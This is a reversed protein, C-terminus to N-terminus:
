APTLSGESNTEGYDYEGWGHNGTTYKRLEEQNAFYQQNYWHANHADLITTLCPNTGYSGIYALM